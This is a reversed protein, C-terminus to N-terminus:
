RPTLGFMLTRVGCLVLSYLPASIMKDYEIGGGRKWHPGSCQDFPRYIKGQIHPLLTPFVKM